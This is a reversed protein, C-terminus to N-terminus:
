PLRRARNSASKINMKQAEDMSMEETRACSGIVVFTRNLLSSM